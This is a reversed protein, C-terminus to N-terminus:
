EIAYRAQVMVTVDPQGAEIPAAAMTLVAEVMEGPQHERRQECPAIVSVTPSARRAVLVRM